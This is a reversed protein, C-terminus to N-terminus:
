DQGHFTAGKFAGRKHLRGVVRGVIRAEELERTKTSVSLVLSAQLATSWRLAAMEEDTCERRFELRSVVHAPVHLDMRSSRGTGLSLRAVTIPVMPQRTIIYSDSTRTRRHLMVGAEWFKRGFTSVETFGELMANAAALHKKKM